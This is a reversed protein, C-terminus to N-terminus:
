RLERRLRRWRALGRRDEAASLTVGGFRWLAYDAALLDLAVRGRGVRRLRGAHETPTETPLRRVSPRSELDAVLALYATAADAPARRRSWLRRRRVIPPEVAEDIWRTEEVDDPEPPSLRNMWLRALILIAAVAVLLATGGLGFAVVQDGTTSGRGVGVGPAGPASGSGTVRAVITVIVSLIAAAVVFLGITRLSRGFGVLIGAILAPVLLVGILFQVAIGAVNASGSAALVIGAVLAVLLIVWAPNRRWDFGAGRGLTTLRVLASAVISTAAFTAAATFTSDLFRARWPEAVAGGLIALLAIGPLGVGIVRTVTSEALPLEAHAYGRVVALGALWCGPDASLFGAVDGAALHARADASVLCGAVVGLVAVVLAVWPWREGARRGAFRAVAVGVTVFTALVPIGLVPDRLAYEQAIGAVVSIWAAEAVIVLVLPILDLAAATGRANGSSPAATM